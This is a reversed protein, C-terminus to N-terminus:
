LARGLLLFTVLMCATDFYLHPGRRLAAAVSYAYAALTGLAVLLDTTTWGYRLASWAGRLFPWGSWFVVPTALLWLVAVFAARAGAGMAPLYGSWVPVSLMMVPLALTAAGALRRLLDSAVVGGPEREAAGYGLRSVVRTLEAVDTAAPDFAVEAEGSAYQVRARLVGPQRRLVHEVLVACSACWLGELALRATRVEGSGPADAVPEPPAAAARVAAWELRGGARLERLREEGLLLWLDRCGPCCFVQGGAHVPARVEGGCLHCATLVAM